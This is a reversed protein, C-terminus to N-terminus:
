RRLLKAQPSLREKHYRCIEVMDTDMSFGLRTMLATFSPDAQALTLSGLTSFFDENLQWVGQSFRLEEGIPISARAAPSVYPLTYPARVLKGDATSMVLGALRAGALFDRLDLIDLVTHKSTGRITLACVARIAISDPLLDQVQRVTSGSFIDDDFLIYQGPPILGVQKVISAAGPRAVMTPTALPENLPYCRSIELNFDGEICPDLSIISHGRALKQAAQRQESLSLFEVQLQRKTDPWSAREHCEIMLALLGEKFKDLAASLTEEPLPFSSLSWLGEDRLYITATPQDGESKTQWHFYSAPASHFSTQGTRRHRHRISQSSLDHSAEGAFIIESNAQVLPDCAFEHYPEESGPRLVCVCKGDPLFGRTFRANDSGFVYYVVPAPGYTTRNTRSKDARRALESKALQNELYRELRVIVDTFNLMREVGLAEWGCAMLWDSEKVAEQCLMLRHSSSLTESGCKPDVYTAHSPSLYGGIVTRGRAELSRRAIEMMELHGSHIPCFAGTSLLVVPPPPPEKGNARATKLFRELPPILKSLPTMIWNEDARFHRDEPEGGDDFFGALDLARATQLDDAGRLYPLARSYIPDQLAKEILRRAKEENFEETM